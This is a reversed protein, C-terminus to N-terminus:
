DSFPDKKELAAKRREDKKKDINVTKETIAACDYGRMEYQVGVPTGDPRYLIYCALETSELYTSLMPVIKVIGHSTVKEEIEDNIPYSDPNQSMDSSMISGRRRLCASFTFVMIFIMLISITKKM